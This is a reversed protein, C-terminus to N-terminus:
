DLGKEILIIGGERTVHFYLNEPISYNILGMSRLKELIELKGQKVGEQIGRNYEYKCSVKTEKNM